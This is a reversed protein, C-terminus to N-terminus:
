LRPISHKSSPVSQIQM